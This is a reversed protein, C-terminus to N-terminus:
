RPRQSLVNNHNGRRTENIIHYDIITNYIYTSTMLCIAINLGWCIPVFVGKARRLAEMRGLVRRCM